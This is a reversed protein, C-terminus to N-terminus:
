NKFRAIYASINRLTRFDEINLEDMVVQFGFAQEIRLLIDVLALSDLLGSEILDADDGPADMFLDEEFFRRIEQVILENGDSLTKISTTM